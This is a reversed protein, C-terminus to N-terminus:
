GGTAAMVTPTGVPNGSFLLLGVNRLTHQELFSDMM